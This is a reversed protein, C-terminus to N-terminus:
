REPADGVVEKLVRLWAERLRDRGAAELTGWAEEPACRGVVEEAESSPGARPPIELPLVSQNSPPPLPKSQM